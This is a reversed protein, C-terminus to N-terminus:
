AKEHHMFKSLAGECAEANQTFTDLAEDPSMGAKLSWDISRTLHEIHDKKYEDVLWRVFAQSAKEKKHKFEIGIKELTTRISKGDEDAIASVLDRARTSLRNHIFGHADIEKSLKTRDESAILFGILLLDRPKLQKSLSM